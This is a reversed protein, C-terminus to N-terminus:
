TKYDVPGTGSIRMTRHPQGTLKFLVFLGSRTFLEFLNVHKSYDIHDVKNDGSISINYIKQTRRNLSETLKKIMAAPSM